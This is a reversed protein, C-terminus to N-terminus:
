DVFILDSWCPSSAASPASPADFSIVLYGDSFEFKGHEESVYMELVAPPPPSTRFSKRSRWASDDDRQGQCPPPSAGDDFLLTAASEILPRADVISTAAEFASRVRRGVGGIVVSTELERRYVPTDCTWRGRQRSCQLGWWAAVGDSLESRASSLWAYAVGANNCPPETVIFEVSAPAVSRAAAALHVTDRASLTHTACILTAAPVPCTWVTATLVIAGLGLLFTRRAREAHCSGTREMSGCISAASPAPAVQPVLLKM